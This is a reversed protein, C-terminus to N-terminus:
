PNTVLNNKNKRLKIFFFVALGVVAIVGFGILAYINIKGSKEPLGYYDLVEDTKGDIVAIINKDPIPIYLKDNVLDYKMIIFQNLDRLSLDLKIRNVVRDTQTDAVLIEGDGDRSAIYLKKHVSNFAITQPKKVSIEAIKDNTEGSIVTIKDEYLASVYIKDISNIMTDTYHFFHPYNFIPQLKIPLVKEITGMEANVVRILDEEKNAVYILKKNVDVDIIRPFIGINGITSVLIDNQSDIVSITNDMRNAIYIKSNLSDSFSFGIPGRGVKITKILSDSRPDVVFVSDDVYNLVYIKEVTKDKTQFIPLVVKPGESGVKLVSTKNAALDIIELFEEDYYATYFKGSVDDLFDSTFGGRLSFTNKTKKDKTDIMQLRKGWDDLVLLYSNGNNEWIDVNIGGHFIRESREDPENIEPISISTNKEGDIILIKDNIVDPFYIKNLHEDVAIEGMFYIKTKIGTELLNTEGNIVYIRGLTTDKVYIKNTNSNVVMEVPSSNHPMEITKLIKDSIGDIVSVTGSYSNSVYIKNTVQNIELWFPMPDVKIKKVVENSKGDIVLVENSLTACYIKNTLPNVRIETPFQESSINKIIRNTNGDIISISRSLRNIVYVKNTNENLVINTPNKGVSIVTVVSNNKGDIVSLSEGGNNAVYIYNTKRNVAITTPHVGVEIEALVPNIGSNSASNIIQETDLVILKGNNGGSSIYIRGLSQNLALGFLAENISLKVKSILLNTAGNIAVLSKEGFNLVYYTDTESDIVIKEPSSFNKEVGSESATFSHSIKIGFFLIIVLFFIIVKELKEGKM